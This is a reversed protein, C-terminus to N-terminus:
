NMWHDCMALWFFFLIASLTSIIVAFGFGIARRRSRRNKQYPKRPNVNSDNAYGNITVGVCGRLISAKTREYQVPQLDMLGMVPWLM